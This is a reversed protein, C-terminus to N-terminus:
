QKAKASSPSPHSHSSACPVPDHGGEAWPHCRLIRKMGIYLGLVAGHTTVAGAMYASCTPHYRCRTGLLPSVLVQYGRILVKMLRQVTTM